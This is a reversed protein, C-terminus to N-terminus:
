RGALKALKARAEQVTMGPVAALAKARPGPAAAAPAPATLFSAVFAELVPLVMAVAGLATRFPEPVLPISAATSIVSNIADEIQQILPAAATSTLSANLGALVSAATSLGLTIAGQAAAPIRGPAATLITNFAATLGQVINQADTVVQLPVTQAPTTGPTQCSVLLLAPSGLLITRRFM